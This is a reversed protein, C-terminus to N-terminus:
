GHRSEGRSGGRGVAARQPSPGANRSILFTMLLRQFTELDVTSNGLSSVHPDESPHWEDFPLHMQAFSREVQLKSRSRATRTSALSSRDRNPDCSFKPM